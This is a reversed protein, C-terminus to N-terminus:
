LMGVAADVGIRHDPWEYPGLHKTIRGKWFDVPSVQDLILYHEWVNPDDQYQQASQYYWDLPCLREDVLCKEDRHIHYGCIFRHFDDIGAAHFVEEMCHYKEVQEFVDGFMRPHADCTMFTPQFTM